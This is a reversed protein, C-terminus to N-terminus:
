LMWQCRNLYAFFPRGRSWWTVNPNIHTGAFYQQGPLGMSAPSCVFAHWVLRNLGECCAQDFAPKLNDWLTEQWHPGITTFGEALVLRHGYVHAASAPQKVFFRNADGIRHRWSWAWFESMPADNFGLCQQADIPVAHPGGSEPHIKLGHRHAREKFLRYHHDIALDGMTRRLDHLFRNSQERNNLIRGTMVPLWPLPDYGRRRRFEERLTPTWNAVEVEWSDTHLYTLTTGALPGADAILPEVVADWYRTFAGADFPDLAYGEWGESCTSVHCHDNLTCGFRLIEWRGDPVEWRLTGDPAMRGTLDVVASVLGDEEGPTAPLQELLPTTDPASFHLARRLAKEELNLIPQRAAGALLRGDTAFLRAEAVQVNRPARPSRPDFAATFVIRFVRGTAGDWRIEIPRAPEAAEFAAVPKFTRGDLAVEVRGARPGYGPRPHLVLRNAMVPERFRLALWQPREPAPGNEPHNTNSVWFTAPDGDLVANVPHTRQASSAGAKEFRPDARGAGVPCALVFLDRYWGERFRPQPLQVTVLGPGELLRSSWTLQKPADEPPVMPGGLNWGSQINLSLELGLRAAEKLAHRYLERWEPSFFDPGHPVRENGDQSSGDADCILAGGWGQAKMQELDRTISAKTVNGNLWWWYARLQGERPVKEWGAELSPRVTTRPQDFWGLSELFADMEKVTATYWRNGDRGFNFFGHGQGEYLRLECRAGLERMRKQWREATAVPILKDETGLFVIAPPLGKRLNHLPSFERWREKVREYGWGGPGNDFVPNFLILANPRPSVSTDEGREDFGQLIATAAAVHGGASGGGAGIRDPDIGLEAAHARVWRIASKGDQVCEYPSTGHRSRVRYEAAMAVLGREALHACQPYFQRPAGGVWGGGFFFVVAARRDTSELGAPEFVHLRLSVEGVQKFVILRTPESSSPEGTGASEAAQLPWAVWAALLVAGM